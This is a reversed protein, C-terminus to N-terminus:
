IQKTTNEIIRKITKTFLINNELNLIWFPTDQNNNSSTHGYEWKNSKIVQDYVKELQLTLFIIM